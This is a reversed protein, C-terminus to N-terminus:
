GREDAPVDGTRIPTGWGSNRLTFELHAGNDLLVDFGCSLDGEDNPEPPFFEEVRATKGDALAFEPLSLIARHVHEIVERALGHADQKSVAFSGSSSEM